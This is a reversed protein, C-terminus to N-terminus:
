WICYYLTVFVVLSQIEGFSTANAVFAQLYINTLKNTQYDQLLFVVGNWSNCIGACLAKEGQNSANM